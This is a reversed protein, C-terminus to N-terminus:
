FLYIIRSHEYDSQKQETGIDAAEAEPVGDACLQDIVPTAEGFFQLVLQPLGDIIGGDEVIAFVVDLGPVDLVLHLSVLWAGPM